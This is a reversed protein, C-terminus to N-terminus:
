LEAERMSRTDDRLGNDDLVWTTPEQESNPVDLPREPLQNPIARVEVEPGGVRLPNGGVDGSQIGLLINVRGPDLGSRQFVQLIPKDKGSTGEDNNKEMQFLIGALSNWVKLRETVDKRFEGGERTEELITPVLNRGLLLLMIQVEREVSVAAGERIVKRMYEFHDPPLTNKMEILIQSALETPILAKTKNKAGKPRGRSRKTESAKAEIGARSGGETPRPQAEQRTRAFPSQQDDLNKGRQAYCFAGSGNPGLSLLTEFVLFHPPGACFRVTVLAKCPGQAVTSCWRVM